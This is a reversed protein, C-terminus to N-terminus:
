DGLYRVATINTSSNTSSATLPAASHSPCSSCRAVMALSSDSNSPIYSHSSPIFSKYSISPDLPSERAEYFFSNLGRTERHLLILSCTMHNLLDHSKDHSQSWTVGTYCTSQAMTMIRQQKKNRWRHKYSSLQPCAVHVVELAAVTSRRM